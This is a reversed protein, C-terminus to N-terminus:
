PGSAAPGESGLLACCGTGAAPRRLVSAAAEANGPAAGSGAEACLGHGQTLFFNLPCLSPGLAPCPALRSAEEELVLGM